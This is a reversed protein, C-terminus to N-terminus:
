EKILTEIQGDDFSRMDAPINGTNWLLIDVKLGPLVFLVRMMVM